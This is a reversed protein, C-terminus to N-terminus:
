VGMRLRKRHVRERHMELGEPRLYKLCIDCQATYITKRMAKRRKTSAVSADIDQGMCGPCRRPYGDGGGLYEGCYMCAEGELVSEAIEGM